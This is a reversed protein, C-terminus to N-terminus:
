DEWTKRRKDVQKNIFEAMKKPQTKIPTIKQPCEAQNIPCIIM